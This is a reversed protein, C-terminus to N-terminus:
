YTLYDYATAPTVFRYLHEVLYDVFSILEDSSVFDLGQIENDEVPQYTYIADGDLTQYDCFSDLTEETAETAFQPKWDSDIVGVIFKQM